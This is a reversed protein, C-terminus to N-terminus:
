RRVTVHAVENGLGAASDNPAPFGQRLASIRVGILLAEEELVEIRQQLTRREKMVAELRYEEKRFALRWALASDDALAVRMRKAARRHCDEHEPRMSNVKVPIIRRQKAFEVALDYLPRILDFSKRTPLPEGKAAHQLLQIALESDNNVRLPRYTHDIELVSNIAALAARIEFYETSPGDEFGAGELGPAPVNM